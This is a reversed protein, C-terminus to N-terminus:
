LSTHHRQLFAHQYFSLQRYQKICNPFFQLYSKFQAPLISAGLEQEEKKYLHLLSKCKFWFVKAAATSLQLLYSFVFQFSSRKQLLFFQYLFLGANGAAIGKKLQLYYEWNLRKADICHEFQLRDDYMVNYGAVQVLMCWEIDGGSSLAGGKRDTLIAKYGANFFQLLIEKRYVSGAGYVGAAKKGIVGNSSHQAGVAFSHSYRAFWEPAKIEPKATGKGGIVGTKPNAEMLSYATEIYDSALTNDDDCFIVYDYKAVQLGKLRAFNLGPKQEHVISGNTSLQYHQILSTAAGATDDSSNNNVIVLEWAPTQSIQQQALAAITTELKLASNYCCIIVSVGKM